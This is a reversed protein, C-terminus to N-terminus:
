PAAEPAPGAKTFVAVYQYPLLADDVEVPTWGARVAAEMLSAPRIRHEVPPGVPTPEPEFELIVLRAGTRLTGQLRTLWGPWDPVHHLVNCVFVLDADPPAGPDGPSTLAATVNTLGEAAARERVHAVMEPDVDVAVVRGRPVAQALRVTFYGSGAGVDVVTEDGELALAAIVAEPKQWEDREPRELHGIYEDTDEFPRHLDGPEGHGQGHGHGHGHGPAHEGETPGPETAAPESPEPDAPATRAPAGGCGAALASFLPLLLLRRLWNKM